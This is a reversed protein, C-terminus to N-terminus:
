LTWLGEEEEWVRCRELTIVPLLASTVLVTAVEIEEETVVMLDEKTTVVVLAVAVDEGLGEAVVDEVLVEEGEVEEEGLTAEGVM